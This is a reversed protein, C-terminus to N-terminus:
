LLVYRRGIGYPAFFQRKELVERAIAAEAEAEAAAVARKSAEWHDESQENRSQLRDHDRMEANISRPTAPAETPAPETPREYQSEGTNQNVYYIDGYTRSVATEWGQPLGVSAMEASIEVEPEPQPEQAVRAAERARDQLESKELCDVHSLGSSTIFYRLQAVTM